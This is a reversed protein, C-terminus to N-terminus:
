QHLCLPKGVEQEPSEKHHISPGISATQGRWGPLRREPRFWSGRGYRSAPSSRQTM